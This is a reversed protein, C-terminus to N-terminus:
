GVMLWLFGESSIVTKVKFWLFSLTVPCLCKSSKVLMYLFHRGYTYSIFGLRVCLVSAPSCPHTIFTSSNGLFAPWLSVFGGEFLLPRTLSASFQGTQKHRLHDTNLCPRVTPLLHIPYKLNHLCKVNDIWLPMHKPFIDFSANGGMKILVRSLNQSWPVKTNKTNGEM